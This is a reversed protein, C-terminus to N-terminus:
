LSIKIGIRLCFGNLNIRAQRINLYSSGPNDESFILRSYTKGTEDGAFEGMWIKGRSIEELTGSDSNSGWYGWTHSWDYTDKKIGKWNGFDVWRGLLEAVLSVGERIKYEFGGMLHLGIAHCNNEESYIGSSSYQDRFEILTGSLNKEDVFNFDYQYAEKFDLRGYYYGGGGGICFSWKEAHLFSYCLSLTVPLVQLKYEPQQFSEEHLTITGFDSASNIYAEEQDTFSSQQGGRRNALFEIGLNVSLYPSLQYSVEGGGEWLIHFEKVDYLFSYPSQNRDQFYDRWGRISRNLDGGSFWSGGAYFKFSVQSFLPKLVLLFCFLSFLAKRRM